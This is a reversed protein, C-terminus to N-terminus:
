EFFILEYDGKYKFENFLWKWEKPSLFTECTLAWCQLNFLEKENRYSETMIYQAKSVRSIEKLFKKIQFIELNHICGLSIALDFYGTKYKFNKRADGVKIFKKIDKHSNSIAYKSIDFGKITIKPLIKKIEYLLFGKGCGIDLIKSENNLDYKNILKKAVPAWYNDIFKYGGYGARRDGDWYDKSYKKALKMFYVKNDMMRKLYNRSTSKHISTFIKLRKNM